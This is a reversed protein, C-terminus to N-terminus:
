GEAMLKKDTPTDGASERLRPQSRQNMSNSGKKGSREQRNNASQQSSFRM